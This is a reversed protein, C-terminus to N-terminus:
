AIEPQLENTRIYVPRYAESDVEKEESPVEAEDVTHRQTEM